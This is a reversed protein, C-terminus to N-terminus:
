SWYVTLKPITAGGTEISRFKQLRETASSESSDYVVFGTNTGTYQSQVLNTVTWSMWGTAATAGVPTGTPAPQNAWTVTSGSWIASASAVNITSPTGAVESSLQFTANSLSCGAPITPLSFQVLSRQNQSASKSVVYLASDTGKNQSPSAQSTWADASANVTASSPTCTATVTIVFTQAPSTDLAAGGAGNDKLKVTVTRTGTAGAKLTFTLTGTSSITPKVDFLDRDQPTTVQFTLTQGAEDAGGASIDTAWGPVSYFGTSMVVNQDAGKTFSPPDNVAAVNFTLTNPSADLGVGGNATGGNDQVQFTFSTYPTGNGNAGPHFVLLGAAIDAASVLQGATVNTGNLKAAVDAPLTTIKM